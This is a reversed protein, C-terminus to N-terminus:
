AELKSPMVMEAEEVAEKTRSVMASVTNTLHKDVNPTFFACFFALLSFAISSYFVTRYSDASARKLASSADQIITTSVGDVEELMTANSSTLAQLLQAVSGKPLGAGLVAPIVERPINSNLENALITSYIAACAAGFSARITGMLGCAVGIDKQDAIDIGCIIQAVGDAWGIFFTGLFLLATARAKTNQDCTTM